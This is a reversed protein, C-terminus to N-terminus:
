AAKGSQAKTRLKQKSIFKVKGDELIPLALGAELLKENEAKIESQAAHLDIKTSM